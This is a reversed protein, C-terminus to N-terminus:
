AIRTKFRYFIAIGILMVVFYIAWDSLPVSPPPGFSNGEILVWSDLIEDTADAIAIKIHHTNGPIVDATGTMLTTFGDMETDYPATFNDSPATVYYNPMVSNDVYYQCNTCPGTGFMWEDAYGNNVTNILIPTTTGPVLAINVGDLFFAFVDNM